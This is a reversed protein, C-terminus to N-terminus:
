LEEVKLFWSQATESLSENLEGLQKKGTAKLWNEGAVEGQSAFPVIGGQWTARGCLVGNFTSKAESALHLTEQFLEASVGGSLFIFPLNTAANQEKFYHMAESKTYAIEGDSYGEVFNMNIPVEVKLVDVNYVPKSFEKMMENVKYPKIKAFALSDPALNSASYSVLELFFPVEEALCESGLREIFVQKIQNIKPEEDVDYYLLFKVADAGNEKLRKVSWEPLLDPLRGKKSSDYGTKEYALILGTQSDRVKAAPLGYEPDLLIATALPTLTESVLKKFQILELDGVTSLSNHALMKQLSGRQDIALAGIIGVENSVRKLAAFKKKSLRVM